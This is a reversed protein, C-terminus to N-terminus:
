QLKENRGLVEASLICATEKELQDNIIKNLLKQGNWFLELRNEPIKWEEAQRDTEKKIIELMEKSPNNM